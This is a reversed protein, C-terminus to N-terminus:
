RDKKTSKPMPYRLGIQKAYWQLPGLGVSFRRKNVNREDKIPLMKYIGLSDTNAQTGYIQEKGNRVLIRDELLALQAPRAKGTKVAERMLPVYKEQNELTTHQIVVWLTSSGSSGIVDEGLWGYRNIIDTVKILNVSDLQSAKRSWEKWEASNVEGRNQNIMDQDAKFITDLEAILPKNLKSYSGALYLTLFIVPFVTAIVVGTKLPMSLGHNKRANLWAGSFSGLYTILICILISTLYFKMGDGKYVVLLFLLFPLYIVPPMYWKTDPYRFAVAALTILSFICASVFGPKETKLVSSVLLFIIILLLSALFAILLSRLFTKM